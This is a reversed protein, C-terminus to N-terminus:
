ERGWDDTRFPSAPLGEKNFLNCGEPNDAWAYRVAVPNAVTPSSVVVTDKEIRAEAWVFKKDAGAIAFGKLPEGGKAELGGGVHTFSLRVRNGEVKMGACLPGMCEIKEGYVQARAVLALRRGVEEKQKPHIDNAEGLEITVALGANPVNRATMLQAERLGAWGSESPDAKVAMFNPLQVILFPFDGEGWASRWDAIMTPLLKRYQYSKGANAEGQYWIAGRMGYPTVPAIMANYLRTPWVQRSPDSPAKPAPKGEAKAKASEDKWQVLEREYKAKNAPYDAQLRTLQALIPAFEADGKLAKLSTWAEAATGGWSSNILGVPVKLEKHLEKGFYYGVASFGPATAPKCEMWAGRCESAPTDAQVRAVTFLRIGPYDAKAAEEKGNTASSLGFAMNSQGSCMWVEGVLVNKISVTNKGAVVMEFPGGAEMPGVKVMWKGDKDTVAAGTYTGVTVTVKEGPEATGWVPAKIQRQLVMNDTFMSAPKVDAWVWSGAAVVCVVLGCM